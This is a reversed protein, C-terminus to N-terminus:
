LRAYIVACAQGGRCTHLDANDYISGVHKLTPQVNRNIIEMGDYYWIRGDRTIIQATFHLNSYYIVAQLTYIYDCNEISLKFTTNIQIRLQPISFVLLPPDHCFKFKIGAAHGCIECRTHAHNTEASMWQVISEYQHVGLGASLVADYDDSHHVHHGNPCVYYREYVVMNTSLLHTCVTEISTYHGFTAGNPSRAILRRADDRVNELSTEGREYLSFGDLLLNTVANGMKRMDQAWRERNSCWLAFLPTFVADYACSNESWRYGVPAEYHTAHSGSPQYLKRKTNAAVRSPRRQIQSGSSTRQLGSSRRRKAAGTTKGEISNRANSTSESKGLIGYSKTVPVQSTSTTSSVKNGKKEAKKQQKQKDLKELREDLNLVESELWPSCKSWRISAHVKQPIYQEGRWERFATIVNNRTDGTIKRLLKGSYLLRTIEDLLELERFEQRLAGSCGDMIMKPDFGQLILTGESTASRSLATYYSQHSRLNNPDAVNWPRTKGQSAFDTMAFNILVEVQTRV